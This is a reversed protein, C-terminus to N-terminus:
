GQHEGLDCVGKTHCIYDKNQPKMSSGFPWPGDTTFLKRPFTSPRCTCLLIVSTMVRNAKKKKMYQRSFQKKGIVQLRKYCRKTPSSMEARSGESLSMSKSKVNWFHEKKQWGKALSTNIKLTHSINGTYISTTQKLLLKILVTFFLLLYNANCHTKTHLMFHM